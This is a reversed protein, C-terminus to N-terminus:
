DRKRELANILRSRAKEVPTQPISETSIVMPPIEENEESKIVPSLREGFQQEIEADTLIPQVRKKRIRKPRVTTENEEM